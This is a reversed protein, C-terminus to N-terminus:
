SVLDKPKESLASDIMPKLIGRMQQYFNEDSNPQPQSM